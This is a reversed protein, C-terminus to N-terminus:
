SRQNRLYLSYEAKLHIYFSSTLKDLHMAILLKTVVMFDSMFIKNRVLHCYLLIEIVRSSKTAGRTKAGRGQKLRIFAIRSTAGLEVISLM